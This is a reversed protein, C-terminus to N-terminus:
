LFCIFWSAFPSAVLKVLFYRVFQLLPKVATISVIHQCMAGVLNAATEDELIYPPVLLDAITPHVGRVVSPIYLTQIQVLVQCIAPGHPRTEGRGYQMTADKSLYLEQQTADSAITISAFPLRSAM